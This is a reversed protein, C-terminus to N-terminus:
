EVIFFRNVFVDQHDLVLRYLYIGAAMKGGTHDTAKWFMQHYGAPQEGDVLVAVKQGTLDYVSLEVHAQKSLQYPIFTSITFPNPHNQGLSNGPLHGGPFDNIGIITSFVATIVKDDDMIISTPNENGTLDGEWHSFIYGEDPVAQLVVGTGPTYSERKQYVSVSGNTAIVELTYLYKEMEATVTKDGDMVITAPNATGSLDGSWGTFRYRDDPIVSLKVQQGKEFVEGAPDRTITGNSINTALAFYQIIEFTASVHKGSSMEISVPNEEGTLDGNWQLFRYGEDPIATLSVITGEDYTGGAPDLVISGHVSETTLTHVPIQEFLATVTMDAVMSISEPNSSGSLDGTWGSLRYGPNAVATLIVTQLSDYTGGPPSLMVSGNSANTVLDYSPSNGPIAVKIASIKAGDTITSFDINLVGDSLTVNHEEIYAYYKGVEGYIDLNSIVTSGELDVNFLRSGANDWFIEAFM